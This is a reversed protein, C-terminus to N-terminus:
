TVIRLILQQKACETQRLNVGISSPLTWRMVWSLNQTFFPMRGVHIDSPLTDGEDLLLQYFGM